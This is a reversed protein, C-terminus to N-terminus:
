KKQFITGQILNKLDDPLPPTQWRGESDTFVNVYRGLQPILINMAAGAILEGDENQVVGGYRVAEKLTIQGPLPVKSRYHGLEVTAMGPKSIRLMHRAFDNALPTVSARGDKDTLASRSWNIRESDVTVRAGEVPEGAQDVVRISVQSDERIPGVQGSDADAEFRLGILEFEAPPQKGCNVGLGLAIIEGKPELERLDTRVEHIEGDPLFDFSRFPFINEQNPGTSDDIWLGYAGGEPDTNRARYTLVAIPYRQADFPVSFYYIWVHRMGAQAVIFRPRDKEEEMAVLPTDVQGGWNTSRWLLYPDIVVAKEAPMGLVEQESLGSPMQGSSDNNVGSPTDEARGCAMPLLVAASIFVAILGLLGLKATKPLPRSVIHKIRQTLAKKSEVVGILRLSLAPRWFALEAIDVLTDSYGDAERGLTVLVMEDVAQERVRRVMANALWLLPNYFYVIQLVTQVLNVWTDCRKVHALEHILVARVKQRDLNGLLYGPLLITHRFLGCVAPSVMSASIRLGVQRTVGVDARCRDLLDLLRGNAKEAQDLLGKVFRARQVLLASFILVGVLWGLLVLGQWSIPEPRVQAPSIEVSAAPAVPAIPGLEFAEAEAEVTPAVALPPGAEVAAVQASVVPESPWYDGLWYGIGSPLALSSPLVLKVFVLMWLCYRFVARVRKGLLFNVALLLLILISSQIFIGAAHNCFGQGVDNLVTTLDNILQSM